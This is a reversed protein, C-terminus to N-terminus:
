ITENFHEQNMLKSLVEKSPLVPKYEQRIAEIQECYFQKMQEIQEQHELRLSEIAQNLKSIQNEM